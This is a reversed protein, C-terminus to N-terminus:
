LLEIREQVADIIQFRSLFRHDRELKKDMHEQEVGRLVCSSGFAHRTWFFQYNQLHQYRPTQKQKWKLAFTILM